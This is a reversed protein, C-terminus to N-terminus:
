IYQIKINKWIDRLTMKMEQYNPSEKPFLHPYKKMDEKKLLDVLIQTTNKNIETTKLINYNLSNLGNKSWHKIDIFLKEYKHKEVELDPKKNRFDNITIMKENEENDIVMGVKPYGVTYINNIAMRTFFDDDEGGWGFYNNAYGNIKEFLKGSFQLMGGVFIKNIKKDFDEYRTGRAALSIPFKFKKGFYQILDYDPILDIDTFIYSEFKKNSLKNALEFGINKLKGINFEYGDHSQEIIYIHFTYYPELLRNMLTIFLKREREREGDGKDRFCTIIAIHKKTKLQKIALPNELNKNKNIMVFKDTLYNFIGEKTLYKQYFLFANGAIKKCEADHDRCWEIKEILDSLDGKISIYHFGDVLMHSFWMKYPSEVIFVISNMSLESALRFASVYGDINLIYKYLSKDYNTIQNALKFRFKSPDIISIPEGKYKKMRAKWDTIGADLLDSYDVSMDAVKLRMNNNINNGCGTASGRFICIDKKKSWDINIKSWTEKHYSNSCDPTFYHNSAMTWEDNTPILIDAFKNTVSKSFIPAMKKFKFEDEVKINDSDFIHEYPETLDKKLLPFDRDNIFFEIDPIIRNKLLEELMNKYVNTNLEGEYEPFQNRFVCNNAYWRERRFNIKRQQFQEPHEKQFKLINADLQRKVSENKYDGTKLLRKEEESFYTNKYWNNKYNANSFPLYLVLRNNRIIVFIGKKFKEFMYNLTNKISIYDINKYLKFIPEEKFLGNRKILKIKNLNNSKNSKILKNSKNSKNLSNIYKSKKITKKLDLKSNNKFLNNKIKIKPISYLYRLPLLAYKNLDKIDGAHFYTQDFSKFRPNTIFQNGYKPGWLKAKELCKDKSNYYDDKIKRFKNLSFINLNSDM